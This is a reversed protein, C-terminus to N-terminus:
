RRTAARGLIRRKKQCLPTHPSTICRQQLKTTPASGRAAKPAMPDSYEWSTIDRIAEAIDHDSVPGWGQSHASLSPGGGEDSSAYFSM